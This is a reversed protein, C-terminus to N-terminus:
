LVINSLYLCFNQEKRNEPEGPVGSLHTRDKPAIRGDSLTYLSPVTSESGLKLILISTNRLHNMPKTFILSM